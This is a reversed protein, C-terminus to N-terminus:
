SEHDIGGFGAAQARAVFDADSENDRQVVEEGTKLRRYACCFKDEPRIFQLTMNPAEQAQGMAQELKEIRSEINGM